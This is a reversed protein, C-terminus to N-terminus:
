SFNKRSISFQQQDPGIRPPRLADRESRRLAPPPAAPRCSPRLIALMHPAPAPRVCPLSRLAIRPPARCVAPRRPSRPVAPRARSPHPASASHRPAHPVPAPRACSLSRLAIGPPRACPPAARASARRCDFVARPPSTRTSRGAKAMVEELAKGDMELRGPHFGRRPPLSGM